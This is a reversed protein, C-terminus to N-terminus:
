QFDDFRGSGGDIGVRGEGEALFARGEEGACEHRRPVDGPEGGVGRDEVRERGEDGAKEHIKAPEITAELAAISPPDVVKIAHKDSRASDVVVRYSFSGSVRPMTIAFSREPASEESEAEMKSRHKAGSEEVWELWAERPADGSGFRPRVKGSIAVDRGGRRSWIGPSRRSWSGASGSSTGGRRWRGSWRRRLPKPGVLGPGVVIGIALIGLALRAAAGRISLLRSPRLAKSRTEAEKTLAEILASSGRGKGALLEVASVLREGGDVEGREALAALDARRVKRFMPWAMGRAFAVAGLM